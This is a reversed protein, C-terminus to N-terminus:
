GLKQSLEDVLEQVDQGPTVHFKPFDELGHMAEPLTELQARCRTQIEEMSPLTYTLEGAEIVTHLLPEADPTPPPTEVLQMVDRELKADKDYVRWFQKIGPYTMKGEALKMTPVREGDVTKEVIKYVGGLSPHDKSTVLETGVGFYDIPAESELLAAIKYENLDGSAVIKADERGRADLIPRVAKALEGLDGSDLRVGSLTGEIDCAREAGRLTDYTDILLTSHNPFVSHYRRFAEEESPCAMTFAHAATGLVPIDCAKGALLNSTGVFGGIFSARAAYVGAMPSHARRTGFDVCNRGRAARAIRAAKSAVMTQYNIVSLLYTEVLQAEFLPATIQLIAENGFALTGELMAKVNGSFRYARLREFFRPSVGQFVEHQRLYDIADGDFRLNILYHICQELGASILYARRKPLRRVFLEFTSSAEMDHELYAAMMTLQYLDTALVMNQDSLFLSQPLRM